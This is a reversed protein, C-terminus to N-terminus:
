GLSTVTGFAKALARAKKLAVSSGKRGALADLGNWADAPIYGRRTAELLFESHLTVVDLVRNVWKPVTDQNGAFWLPESLTPWLFPLMEPQKELTYVVRAPSWVEHYPLLGITAAKVAASGYAEKEALEQVRKTAWKPKMHVDDAPGHAILGQMHPMLRKLASLRQMGSVLVAGPTAAAQSSHAVRM